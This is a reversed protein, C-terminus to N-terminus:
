RQLGLVGFSRACTGNCRGLASLQHGGHQVLSTAGISAIGIFGATDDRGGIVEEVEGKKDDPVRAPEGMEATQVYYNGAEDQFFVREKGSPQVM